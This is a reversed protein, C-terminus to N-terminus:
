ATLAATDTGKACASAVICANLVISSTRRYTFAFIPNCVVLKYIYNGKEEENEIQIVGGMDQIEKVYAFDGTKRESASRPRTILKRPIM